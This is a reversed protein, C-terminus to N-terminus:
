LRETPAFSWNECVSTFFGRYHADFYEKTVAEKIYTKGPAHRISVGYDLCRVSDIFIDQSYYFKRYLKLDQVLEDYNDPICDEGIDFPLCESHILTTCGPCGFVTTTM